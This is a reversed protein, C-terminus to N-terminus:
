FFPKNNDFELAFAEAPGGISEIESARQSIIAQLRKDDKFLEHELKIVQDNIETIQKSARLYDGVKNDFYEVGDRLRKMLRHSAMKLSFWGEYLPNNVMVFFWFLIETFQRGEEKIDMAWAEDEIENKMQLLEFAYKERVSFDREVQLPSLPHAFIIVFRLIKHLDKKAFKSDIPENFFRNRSLEPYHNQVWKDKHVVFPNLPMGDFDKRSYM